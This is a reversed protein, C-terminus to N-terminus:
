LQMIASILSAGAYGVPGGMLGGVCDVGFVKWGNISGKTSKLNAIDIYQIGNLGGQEEPSWFTASYKAVALHEYFLDLESGNFISSASLERTEIQQIIENLNSSNQFIQFTILIESKLTSSINMEDVWSNLDFDDLNEPFDPLSSLSVTSKLSNHQSLVKEVHSRVESRNPIKNTNELVYQLQINHMKGIEEKPNVFESEAEINSKDCSMFATIGFMVMAVVILKSKLKFM